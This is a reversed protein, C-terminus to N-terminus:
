EVAVEVLVSDTECQALVKKKSCCIAGVVVGVVVALLIGGVLGFSQFFNM